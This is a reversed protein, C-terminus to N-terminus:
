CPAHAAAAPGRCSARCWWRVVREWGAGGQPSVRFDEETVSGACFSCTHRLPLSSAAPLVWAPVQGPRSVVGGAPRAELGRRTLQGARMLGLSTQAIPAGARWGGGDLGRGEGSGDVLFVLCLEAEEEVVIEQQEGGGASAAPEGVVPAPPPEAAAAAVASAATPDSPRSCAPDEPPLQM